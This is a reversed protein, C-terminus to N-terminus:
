KVIWDFVIPGHHEQDARRAEPPGDDGPQSRTRPAEASLM